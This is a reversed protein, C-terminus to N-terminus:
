NSMTLNIIEEAIVRAADPKSFKKAAESMTKLKEPDSIVKKLQNIFVNPTLNDTEIVIAAGTAAYDYANKTQHDGAAEPLPVLIAPKGFAAIEFISASGARSVVIDAAAYADKLDKEFYPVIKYRKKEEDTFNKAIANLESKVQEFNNIGTQHLIQFAKVLEPAADLVFDNIRTAGQSGSIVFIVPKEPDFGFFRKAIGQELAEGLLEHRIPTGTVVVNGKFYDEASAFSLAIRKAYGSSIKNALGPITDSEHIMLPVRYFACTLVVPLAGPGGKSFCVDPMFWFVRWLAQFFGIIFKPIDIFNRLDFYRRWKSSAIKSVAIGNMELLNEYAEPAGFYRLDLEINKQSAFKQLEVAVSILPTIHGGTGGGTFLIRLNM